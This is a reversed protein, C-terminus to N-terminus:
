APGRGMEDTLIIAEALDKMSRQMRRSQNRLRLYAEEENIGERRQLIGKAREVLKRSELQERAEKAEEYLRENEDALMSKALANGLQEGMFTVLAIEAPTYEHTERHHVNVIGIANGGSVLPVSLLAQYTDEILHQIYKFRSDSPADSSLAVASKHEAVWGAVGEGMKMRLKGLDAAHPVQSGRLVLENTAGDLVYVLCADCDTAEVAAGIIEGLVEDISLESSVVRSIRHLMHLYSSEDGRFMVM